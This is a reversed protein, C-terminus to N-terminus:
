EEGLVRLRSLQLVDLLVSNSKECTVNDHSYSV